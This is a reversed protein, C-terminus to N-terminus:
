RQTIAVVLMYSGRASPIGPADLLAALWLLYM